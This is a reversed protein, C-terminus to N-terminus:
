DGPRETRSYQLDIQARSEEPLTQTFRASVTSPTQLNIIGRLVVEILKALKEPASIQEIFKPDKARALLTALTLRMDALLPENDDSPPSLVTTSVQTEATGQATPLVLPKLAESKEVAERVEPSLIAITDAADNIGTKTSDM